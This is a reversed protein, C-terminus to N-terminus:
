WNHSNKLNYNERLWIGLEDVFCGISFAHFRYIVLFNISKFFICNLFIANASKFKVKVCDFVNVSSDVYVAVGGARHEECTNIYLKYNPIEYLSIEHDNIWIETLIIIKPLKSSTSLEAM